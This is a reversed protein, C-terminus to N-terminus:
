WTFRYCGEAGRLQAPYPALHLPVASGGLTVSGKVDWELFSCIGSAPFHSLFGVLCGVSVGGSGSATPPLLPHREGSAHGLSCPTGFVFPPKSLLCLFPLFIDQVSSLSCLNYTKQSARPPPHACAHVSSATLLLKSRGPCRAYPCGGYMQRYPLGLSMRSQSLPPHFGLALHESNGMSRAGEGESCAPPMLGPSFAPAPPALCRGARAGRQEWARRHGPALAATGPQPGGFQESCRPLQPRLM